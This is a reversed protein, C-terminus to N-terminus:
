YLHLPGLKKLKSNSLDKNTKLKEIAQEKRIKFKKANFYRTTRLADVRGKAILLLPNIDL